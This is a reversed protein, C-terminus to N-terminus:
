QLHKIDFTYLKGPSLIVAKKDAESVIFDLANGFDESLYEAKFDGEKTLVVMRKNEPDLLYIYKQDENTFISNANKIGIELNKISFAEKVGLSYKMVVNGNILTWISGDISWSVCDLLQPDSDAKLWNGKPSYGTEIPAYRWILATNKDLVYINGGFTNLMVKDNWDETIVRKAKDSVTYIGDKKIVYLNNNDAAQAYSNDLVNPGALIQSRRSNIDIKAIKKQDKDFIYVNGGGLSINSGKFGESLLSLDVFQEFKVNYEGLVLGENDSILKKLNELEDSKVGRQDLGYAIEVGKKFLDRADGPNLKYLNIAEEIDHKSQTLKTEYDRAILRKNRVRIGMVAAVTLIALITIGILLNKRTLKGSDLGSGSRLFIRRKNFVSLFSPKRHQTKKVILHDSEIEQYIKSTRQEDESKTEIGAETEAKNVFNVFIVGAKKLDKSSNIIPAIFEATESVKGKDLAAKLNGQTVSKFFEQTSLILIDDNQPRGSASIVNVSSELITALIKNRYISVKGGGGASSYVLNDVLSIASIQVTVGKKQQNIIVNEVAEKLALYPSKVFEGYYAKHLGTLVERRKLVEGVGGDSEPNGDTAAIVAFLVGRFQLEKDDEPKYEYTYVWNSRDPSSSIKSSIYSLIM